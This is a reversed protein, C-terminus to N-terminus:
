RGSVGYLWLSSLLFSAPRLALWNAIVHSFYRKQGCNTAPSNIYSALAVKELSLSVLSWPLKTSCSQGSLSIGPSPRIGGDKKDAPGSDTRWKGARDIWRDDNKAGMSTTTKHSLTMTEYRGMGAGDICGVDVNSRRDTRGNMRDMWEVMCQRDAAWRLREWSDDNTGQLHLGIHINESEPTLDVSNVSRGIQAINQM